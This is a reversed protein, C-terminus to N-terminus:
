TEKSPGKPLKWEQIFDVVVLHRVFVLSQDITRPKLEQNHLLLLIHGSIIKPHPCTKLKSTFIQETQFRTLLTLSNKWRRPHGEHEQRLVFLIFLNNRGWSQPLLFKGNEISRKGKFNLLIKTGAPSLNGCRFVEKLAPNHYPATKLYNSEGQFNRSDTKFIPWMSHRDSYNPPQTNLQFTLKDTTTDQLSYAHRFISVHSAARPSYLFIYM